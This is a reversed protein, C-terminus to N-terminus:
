DRARTQIAGAAKCNATGRQQCFFIASGDETVESVLLNERVNGSVLARNHTRKQALRFKARGTVLDIRRSLEITILM